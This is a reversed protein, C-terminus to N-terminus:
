VENYKEKLLESIALNYEEAGGIIYAATRREYWRAGAVGISSRLLKRREMDELLNKASQLEWKGSVHGNLEYWLLAPTIGSLRYEHKLLEIVREHLAAVTKDRYTASAKM